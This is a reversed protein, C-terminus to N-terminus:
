GGEYGFKVQRDYKESFIVTGGALQIELFIATLEPFVASDTRFQATYVSPLLEAAEQALPEAGPGYLYTYVLTSGQEACTVTLSPTNRASLQATRERAYEAPTSASSPAFREHIKELAKAPVQSPDLAEKGIAWQQSVRVQLYTGPPYLDHFSLNADFELARDQGEKNYGTLKYTVKLGQVNGDSDLARFPTTDYDLPVVTYYIDALAYRYQYYQRGVVAVAALLALAAGALVWRTIKHRRM